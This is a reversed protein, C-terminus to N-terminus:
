AFSELREFNTVLAHVPSSGGVVGVQYAFRLWIENNTCQRWIDTEPLDTGRIFRRKIICLKEIANM